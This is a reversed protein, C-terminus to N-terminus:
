IKFIKCEKMFEHSVVKMIGADFASLFFVKKIVKDENM